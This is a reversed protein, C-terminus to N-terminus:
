KLDGEEASVLIDTDIADRIIGPLVDQLMPLAKAAEIVQVQTTIPLPTNAVIRAAAKRRATDPAGRTTLDIMQDRMKAQAQIEPSPARLLKLDERKIGSSANVSLDPDTVVGDVVDLLLPKDGPMGTSIVRVRTWRLTAIVAVVFAGITIAWPAVAQAQNTMTEREVALVVSAAHGAQVTAFAAGLAADATATVDFARQTATSQWTQATAIGAATSTAQISDATATANWARETAVWNYAQATATVQSSYYQAAAVAASATAQSSGARYYLDPTGPPVCAALLIPTVVVVFVAIVVNRSLPPPM